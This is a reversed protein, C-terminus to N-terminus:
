GVKTVTGFSLTPMVGNPPYARYRAWYVNFNSAQNPNVQFTLYTYAGQSKTSSQPAGYNVSAVINTASVYSMTVLYNTSPVYAAILSGEDIGCDGTAYARIGGSYYWTGTAYGSCVSSVTTPALGINGGFGPASTTGVLMDLVFPVQAQTYLSTTYVAENTSGPAQVININTPNFTLTSVENTWGAPLTSLGGFVTYGSFVNGGNDYQAYSQSLQPAEGAFIGDYEVTKPLFYMSIVTNTNAPLGQPLKIWFLTNIASSSTCNYECWSNLEKAGSYFRINGLDSKEYANYTIPQFSIPIQGQQALANSQSNIVNLPIRWVGTLPLFSSQARVNGGYTFSTISNYPCAATSLNSAGGACYNATLKFSGSYINGLKPKFTFTATCYVTQGSTAVAPACVGTNSPLFNIYSSFASINVIGPQTDIASIFLSSGTPTNTYIADTCSFGSLFNCQTPLVTAPVSSFLFLMALAIAIILFVFGYGTMFEIASQGKPM